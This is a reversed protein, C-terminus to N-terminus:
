ARPGARVIRQLLTSLTVPIARGWDAARVREEVFAVTAPRLHGIVVAHGRTEALRVADRWRRSILGPDEDGDLFIDRSIVPTGVRTAVAVAVTAATTRSDLFFLGRAGLAALLTEMGTERATFRSGMHNNVGIAGPVGDLNEALAALLASSGMGTLLAGPGPDVAPYGEPEMPLHLLVEKGRAAAGGYDRSHPLRPLVALTLPVPLLLLREALGADNGVDDIV